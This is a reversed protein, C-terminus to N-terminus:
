TGYSLEEAIDSDATPAPKPPTEQARENLLLRRLTRLDNLLLLSGKLHAGLRDLKYAVVRMAEARRAESGNSASDAIDADVDSKSERVVELLLALYQQAEEISEFPAAERSSM